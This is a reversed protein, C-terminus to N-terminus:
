SSRGPLHPFCSLPRRPRSHLTKPFNSGRAGSRGSPSQTPPTGARDPPPNRRPLSPSCASLPPRGAPFCARSKTTADHDQSALTPGPLWSALLWVPPAIISSRKMMRCAVTPSRPQTETGDTEPGGSTQVRGRARRQRPVPGVEDVQLEEDRRLRSMFATRRFCVGRIGSCNDHFRLSDEEPNSSM